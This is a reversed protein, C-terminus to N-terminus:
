WVTMEKLEDSLPVDVEKCYWEISGDLPIKHESYLSISLEVGAKECEQKFLILHNLKDKKQHAFLLIGDKKNKQIFKKFIRRITKENTPNFKLVCENVNPLLGEEFHVNTLKASKKRAM